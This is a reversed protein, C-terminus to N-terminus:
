FKSMHHRKDNKDYKLIKTIRAMIKMFILSIFGVSNLSNPQLKRNYISSKFDILDHYENYFNQIGAVM